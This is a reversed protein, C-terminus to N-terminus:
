QAQQIFGATKMATRLDQFANDLAAVQAQLSQFRALSPLYHEVGDINLLEVATNPDFPSPIYKLNVAAQFVATMQIGQWYNSWSAANIFWYGADPLPPVVLALNATLAM